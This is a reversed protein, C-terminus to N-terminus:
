NMAFDRSNREKALLAGRAALWEEHSVVPHNEISPDDNKM